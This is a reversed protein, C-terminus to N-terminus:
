DWTVADTSDRAGSLTAAVDRAQCRVPGDLAVVTRLRTAGASLGTCHPMRSLHDGALLGALATAISSM